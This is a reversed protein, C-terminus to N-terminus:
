ENCLVSLDHGRRFVPDFSSIELAYDFTGFDDNKKIKREGASSVALRVGDKRVLQLCILSLNPINLKTSVKATVSVTICKYPFQFYKKV